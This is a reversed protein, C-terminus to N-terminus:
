RVYIRKSIIQFSDLNEEDEGNSSSAAIDYKNQKAMKLLYEVIWIDGRHRPNEPLGKPGM